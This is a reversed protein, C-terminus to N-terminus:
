REVVFGGVDVDEVVAESSRQTKTEFLVEKPARTNM